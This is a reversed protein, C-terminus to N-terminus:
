LVKWRPNPFVQEVTFQQKRQEMVKMLGALDFDMYDMVLYLHHGYVPDQTDKDAHPVLHRVPMLVPVQGISHKRSRGEM